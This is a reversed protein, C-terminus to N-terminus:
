KYTFFNEWPDSVEDELWSVQLGKITRVETEEFFGKSRELECRHILRDKWSLWTYIERQLEELNEITDLFDYADPEEEEEEQFQQRQLRRLDDLTHQVQKTKHGKTAREHILAQELSESEGPFLRRYLSKWLLPDDSLSHFHRNILAVNYIDSAELFSLIHLQLESLLSGLCSISGGEEEQELDEM